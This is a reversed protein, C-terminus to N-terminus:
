VVCSISNKIICLGQFKFLCNSLQLSIIKTLSPSRKLSVLNLVVLFDVKTWAFPSSIDSTVTTLKMTPKLSHISRFALGYNLLLFLKVYHRVTSSKPTTSKYFKDRNIISNFANSNERTKNENSSKDGNCLDCRNRDNPRDDDSPYTAKLM